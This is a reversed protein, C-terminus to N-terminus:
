TGPTGGVAYVWLGDHTREEESMGPFDVETEPAHPDYQTVTGTAAATTVNANVKAYSVTTAAIATVKYDGNFVGDVGAVRISDGIVFTHTGITLTAVNTTLVKNTVTGTKFTSLPALIKPIKLPDITIDGVTGKVTTIGTAPAMTKDQILTPEVTHLWMLEIWDVGQVALAARYIKGQSIRTGFDVANFSLTNRVVSDVQQRVSTRNYGDQVHVLIRIYVYTWLDNVDTPEAYVTSGVIVKDKMYDEVQLILNAMYNSDAEGEQPAIRVHVATYVTGHSVSKAVGPVQMALDAYDNLTVARSKIRSAARPISFRMADVSEPNTGGIPSAANRVSVGWLDVDAPVSTSAINIISDSGLDNAAAGVGFRYTVFLSSAVPPIRGAANDGFVVHTQNGDDLWTTFASQTPRALSLDTVFTWPISQGAEESQVSVTNFIVGRDQIVFEANPAGTSSGLFTDRVSVGETSFVTVDTDGPTLTLATNTEFVILSDANDSQNYVRTGQPLTVDESANADLSFLLEVSASQQGIPRYGLMDALYLISQRRVATGLFAESATRDIYFHMVDGMYAFLEILLTGFDSAEGATEWEPMLGRALGVLQSRIAVFDRNTYDLVVSSRYADEDDLSILLGTDSM